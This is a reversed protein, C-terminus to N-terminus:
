PLGHSNRLELLRENDEVAWKGRKSEQRPRVTSQKLRLLDTAMTRTAIVSYAHQLKSMAQQLVALNHCVPDDESLSEPGELGTVSPTGNSRSTAYLAVNEPYDAPKDPQYARACGRMNRMAPSPEWFKQFELNVM